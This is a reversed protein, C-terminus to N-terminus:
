RVEMEDEMRGEKGGGIKERRETKKEMRKERGRM